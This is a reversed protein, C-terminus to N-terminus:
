EYRRKRGPSCAAEIEDWLDQVLERLDKELGKKEIKRILGSVKGKYEFEPAKVKNDSGKWYGEDILWNVCGGIDDIGITYYIPVEVKRHRGTVRNKKVELLINSGITRPKGRVTKKIKRGVASWIELTAYFRPARGGSRTKTEFGFGLNDRKQHILILISGSARLKPLIQRIGASNKKAKGDGYSGTIKRGKRRATKQEQFKDIEADSSLSDTSDIVYLFSRGDNAADDLHDYFDEVTKSFISNGKKDKAPPEIRKAVRQGFFHRIDMLAGDEANDYILRHNDFNPNISAEAFCTLCLFTKGSESDGVFLYMHGKLFGRGVRGTCALDLQTSGTSLYDTPKIKHKKKKRTLQKKIDETKMM